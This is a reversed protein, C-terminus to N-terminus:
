AATCPPSPLEDSCPTSWTPPDLASAPALCPPQAHRLLWSQLIFPAISSYDASSPKITTILQGCFWPFWRLCTQYWSILPDLLMPRALPQVHADCSKRLPSCYTFNKFIIKVRIPTIYTRATKPKSVILQALVFNSMVLLNTQVTCDCRCSEM